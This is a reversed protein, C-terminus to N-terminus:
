GWFVVVVVVFVVFVVPASLWKAPSDAAVVVPRADSIRFFSPSPSTLVLLSLSLSV